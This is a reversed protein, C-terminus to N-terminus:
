RQREPKPPEPQPTIQLRGQPRFFVTDELRGVRTDLGDVVQRDASREARIVAISTNQTAFDRKLDRIDNLVMLGIYGALPVGFIATLRALVTVAASDAIQRMKGGNGSM